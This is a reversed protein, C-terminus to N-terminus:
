LQIGKDVSMGVREGHAGNINNSQRHTHSARFSPTCDVSLRGGMIRLVM